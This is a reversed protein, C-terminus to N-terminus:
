IITPILLVLGTEQSARGRKEFVSRTALLEQHESAGAIRLGFNKTRKRSNFDVIFHHLTLEPMPNGM